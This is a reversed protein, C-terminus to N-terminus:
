LQGAAAAAHHFATTDEWTGEMLQSFMADPVAVSGYDAWTASMGFALGSGDLEEGGLSEALFQSPTFPAALADPFDLAAASAGTIPPPPVYPAPPTTGAPRDDYQSPPTYSVHSSRSADTHSSNTTSPSPHRRKNNASSSSSVGGSGGGGGSSAGSSSTSAEPSRSLDMDVPSPGARQSPFVTASAAGCPIIGHYGETSLPHYRGQSAPEPKRRSPLNVTGGPSPIGAMAAQRAQKVADSVDGVFVPVLSGVQAQRIEQLPLCEVSDTLVCVEAVGKKLGYSFSSQKMPDDLGAGELDVELQVLFSETLPNKRKLIQMASILFSLSTRIQQDDPQGKLYQVFVRAAVYLCFSLFPNMKVPDVHSIMRMISAIETAASYCRLKSETSVAAPMHSKDSKFLAAQHLCITSTHINMNLFVINPDALGSPLRLHTPLSLSTQLLMNDMQRHRKWFEGNLDDDRNDETPRHLHLLNRGFLSAMLIVGAFPSLTGAGSTTMAETLSLSKQPKSKDFAEDTAPLNTLIDKEEILMPWGTGISAYRDNCFAMWFTRRREERETWDRPPALVMKVDLGVGDLRHLSLMQSLRVARGTSMWSRPFYMMKFEYSAILSWCQCHALTLIGEGLGKLEDLEAYKRARHYFIETLSSYRDTVSSALCWMAYRLCVPPRVHPALNMAALYRRRHIMPMSSHIKEFYIQTLDDIVEQVPLPEDIGLGMLEWTFPEGGPLVDEVTVPGQQPGSESRTFGTQVGDSDTDPSHRSQRGDAMNGSGSTAEPSDHTRLLTEVQALRAELAKVYGRKPGSKRRAQDYACDHGLRSCTGCSPKAGDCKLKRKRCIVCAIRKPRALGDVGADAGDLLAAMQPSHSSRADIEAMNRSLDNFCDDVEDLGNSSAM